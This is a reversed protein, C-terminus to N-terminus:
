HIQGVAPAYPSFTLLCYLSGITIVSVTEEKSRATFGRPAESWSRFRKRRNANFYEFPLQSPMPLRDLKIGQLPGSFNARRLVPQQSVSCVQDFGLLPTWLRLVRM